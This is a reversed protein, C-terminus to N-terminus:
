ADANLGEFYHFTIVRLLWPVWGPNIDLGLRRVRLDLDQFAFAVDIHTPTARIRAPRRILEPLSIRKDRACWKRVCRVWFQLHDDRAPCTEEPAHPKPQLARSWPDDPPMGVRQGILLLIRPAFGAHALDPHGQLFRHIGLRSLIPVAFLLGGFATSESDPFTDLATTDDPPSSSEVADKKALTQTPQTRSSPKETHVQWDRPTEPPLCLPSGHIAPLNQEDASIALSSPRERSGHRPEIDVPQRDARSDHIVTVITIALELDASPSAREALLLALTLWLSRQDM